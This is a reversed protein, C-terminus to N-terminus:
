KKALAEDLVKQLEEWSPVRAGQSVGNVILTPTGEIKYRAMGDQAVKNIREDDKKDNICQDVKDAGMGAIRAMQILGQHVANNDVTQTAPNFNQEPGWKDQNRFLLDVFQFYNDAPLCRAIKEAWPDAMNIPFLRFVYYVKGTDIYKEKLLPFVNENFAACHPCTLAGYEILTVKASPSGMTRDSASISEPPLSAAAPATTSSPRLFYVAVAIVLVALVAGLTYLQKQTV